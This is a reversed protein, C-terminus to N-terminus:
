YFSFFLTRKGRHYRGKMLSAFNAFSCFASEPLQVEFTFRHLSHDEALVIMRVSKQNYFFTPDAVVNSGFVLKLANQELECDLSYEVLYLVPGVIRWVISRDEYDFVGSEERFGGNGASPQSGSASMAVPFWVVADWDLPVSLSLAQSIFCFFFFVFFFYFFFFFTHM